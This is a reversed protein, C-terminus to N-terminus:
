VKMPGNPVGGGERVFRALNPMDEDGFGQALMSIRPQAGSGVRGSRPPGWLGVGRGSAACTRPQAPQTPEDKM